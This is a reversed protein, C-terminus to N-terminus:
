ISATSRFGRAFVESRAGAGLRTAAAIQILTKSRADLTQQGALQEYAQDAQNEAEGEHSNRIWDLERQLTKQRQTEKKELIRLLEAKQALWSLLQGRLAAQPGRRSLIWKAINDLFYRDRPSPM